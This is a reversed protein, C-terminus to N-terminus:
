QPLAGGASVAARAKQGCILALDSIRSQRQADIQGHLMPAWLDASKMEGTLCACANLCVPAPGGAVACQNRCDSEFRVEPTSTGILTTLSLFAGFLLPQHLLYIALSHRGCFNMFRMTISPVAPPMNDNAFEPPHVVLKALVMGALVASLSPFLPAFDNTRPLESGLGLWVFAPANFVPPWDFEPLVLAVVSLLVLMPVSRNNLLMGILSSIFICHLIGFFIWDEPMILFTVLSIAAAGAGVYALRRWFKQMYNARRQALVLSIGVLALFSMAISHAFFRGLPSGAPDGSVLHFYGLDWTLHYAVMALVALGRGLDVGAVRWEPPRYAKTAPTPAANGATPATM